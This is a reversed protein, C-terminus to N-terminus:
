IKKINLFNIKEEIPRKNIFFTSNVFYHGQNKLKLGYDEERCNKLKLRLSPQIIADHFDDM